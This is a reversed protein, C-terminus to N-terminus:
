VEAYSEPEGRGWREVSWPPTKTFAVVNFDFNPHSASLMLTVQRAKCTCRPSLVRASGLDKHLEVRHRSWSVGLDWRV